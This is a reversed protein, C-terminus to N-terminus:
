VRCYALLLLWAQTKSKLRLHRRQRRHVSYAGKSHEAKRRWLRSDWIWVRGGHGHHSRRSWTFRIGSRQSFTFRCHAKRSGGQRLPEIRSHCPGQHAEADIAGQCLLSSDPFIDLLLIKILFRLFNEISKNHRVKSAVNLVTKQEFGPLKPTSTSLARLYMPCLVRATRSVACRTLISLM